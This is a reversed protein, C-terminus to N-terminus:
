TRRPCGRRTNSTPGPLLGHEGWLVAVPVRFSSLSSGRGLRVKRGRLEAPSKVSSGAPVLIEAQYGFKGDAGAMVFAPVFGATNVAIPVAGTSLGMVHLEGSRMAEMCEIGAETPPAMEVKRGTVKELHAMFDKWELLESELIPGLSAFMLKKPDLWKSKDAPLDAVLDGDSDTFADDLSTPVKLGRMLYLAYDVSEVPKVQTQYWYWAAGGGLILAPVLLM